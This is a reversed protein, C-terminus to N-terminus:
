NNFRKNDYFKIILNLRKFCFSIVEIIIIYDVENSELKRKKGNLGNMHNNHSLNNNNQHMVHNVGNTPQYAHYTHHNHLIGNRFDRREHIDQKNPTGKNSTGNM